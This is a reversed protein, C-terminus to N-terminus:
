LSYCAAAIAAMAVLAGFTVSRAADPQLTEIKAIDAFDVEAGEGRIRQGDNFNVKVRFREGSNTTIYVIEGPHILDVAREKREVDETPVTRLVTCSESSLMLLVSTVLSLVRRRPYNKM